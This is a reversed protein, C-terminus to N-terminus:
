ESFRRGIGAASDPRDLHVLRDAPLDLREQLAAVLQSLSRRQAETPRNRDFDGILCISVWGRDLQEGPAPPGGALQEAWLRTVQVEGDGLGDGNGVVFHDPPGSAGGQRAMEALTTADGAPTKSHRIYIATWRGSELHVGAFAPEVSNSTTFLTGFVDPALPLPSLL